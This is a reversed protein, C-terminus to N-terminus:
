GRTRYEGPTMGIRKKFVSFLYNGNTFGHNAAIQEVTLSSSKLQECVHSLRVSELYESFSCEGYQRFIRQLQRGSVQLREAVEDLTLPASYNDRMYQAALQYRHRSMDRAPIPAAVHKNRYARVSRQLIQVISHKISSHYFPDSEYWARYATLFWSMANWQDAVPRTPLNQLASICAQAEEDERLTGWEDRRANHVTGQESRHELEVIDIHLCLEWMPDVADAEQYHLVEPGTVYFMGEHLSYEGHQFIVKGKGKPIFHFEYESHKHFPIVNSPPFTALHCRLVRFGFRGWRFSIDLGDLAQPREEMVAYPFTKFSRNKALSRM